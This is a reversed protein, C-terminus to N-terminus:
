TPVHAGAQQQQGPDREWWPAMEVRSSPGPCQVPSVTVQLQSTVSSSCLLGQPPVPWRSAMEQQPLDIKRAIM